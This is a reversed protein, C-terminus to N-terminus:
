SGMVFVVDDEEEDDDEKADESEVEVRYELKDVSVASDKADPLVFQEWGIMRVFDGTANLEVMTSLTLVDRVIGNDIGGTIHRVRNFSAILSIPIWGQVDMQRRLFLDQAMNQMSLYYELQGLLYWRTSDLPFKIATVPTPLPPANPSHPQVPVGGMPLPPPLGHMGPDQHQQHPQMIGNPYGDYGLDFYQPQPPPPPPYVHGHGHYYGDGYGLGDGVSNAFQPVFHQQQPSYGPAQAGGRQFGRWAGRGRGRWGRGRREGTFYGRDFGNNHSGFFGGRKGRPAYPSREQMNGNESWSDSAGNGNIGGNVLGNENERERERERERIRDREREREHERRLREERTMRVAYGSGSAHGFGFGFDKVAWDEDTHNAADIEVPSMISSQTRRHQHQYTDVPVEVGNPVPGHDYVPGNMIPPMGFQPIELVSSPPHPLYQENQVGNGGVEEISEERTVRDDKIVSGTTGFEWKKETLDIVGEDNSSKKVGISFGSFAKELGHAVASDTSPPAPSPAQSSGPMGVSGFVVKRSPESGERGLAPGAVAESDEPRPPKTAATSNPPRDTSPTGNPAQHPQPETETQPPPQLVQSPFPQPPPYPYGVYEPTHHGSGSAHYGNWYLYPQPPPPPYMPYPSPLPLHQQHSPNHYTYYPPNVVPQPSFSYPSALNQTQVQPSSRSTSALEEDSLRRGRPLRPSSAQSHVRSQTRSQSSSPTNRVSNSHSPHRSHSHSKSHSTARRAADAVAQLEEAPIPIWKTKESKTTSRPEGVTSIHRASESIGSQSMRRRAAIIRRRNEWKQGATGMMQHQGCHCGFWLHTTTRWFPRYQHSSLQRERLQWKNRASTGSM